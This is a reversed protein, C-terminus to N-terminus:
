YLFLVYRRPQSRKCYGAMSRGEEGRKQLCQPGCWLSFCQKESPWDTKRHGDEVPRTSLSDEFVFSYDSSRGVAPRRTLGSETQWQHHLISYSLNRAALRPPLGRETHRLRLPYCLLQNWRRCYEGPRSNGTLMCLFCTAKIMRIMAKCNSTVDKLIYHSFSFLFLNTSGRRANMALPSTPPTQQAAMNNNIGGNGQNRVVVDPTTPERHSWTKETQSGIGVFYLINVRWFDKSM